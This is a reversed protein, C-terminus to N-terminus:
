EQLLRDMLKKPTKLFRKFPATKGHVASRSGSFSRTLSSNSPSEVYSTALRRHRAKSPTGVGLDVPCEDASETEDAMGEAQYEQVMKFQEHLPVKVRTRRLLFSIGKIWADHVEWSVPQLKIMRSGTSIIICHESSPPYNRSTPSETWQIAAIFASRNKSQVSESPPQDAWNLM